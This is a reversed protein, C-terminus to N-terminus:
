TKIRLRSLLKRNSNHLCQLFRTKDTIAIWIDALMRFNMSKSLTWAQSNLTISVLKFKGKRKCRSQLISLMLIQPQSNLKVKLSHNRPTSSTRNPNCWLNYHKLSCWTRSNSCRSIPNIIHNSSCRSLLNMKNNCLFLLNKRRNCWKSSNYLSNSSHQKILSVLRTKNITWVLLNFTILNQNRNWKYLKISPNLIQFSTSYLTKNSILFPTKRIPIISSNAILLPIKRKHTIM